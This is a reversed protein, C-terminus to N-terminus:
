GAKQARRRREISIVYQRIAYAAQKATLPLGDLRRTREPTVGLEVLALRLDRMYKADSEISM